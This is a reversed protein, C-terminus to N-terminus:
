GLLTGFLEIANITMRDTGEANKGTQRLRVFRVEARWVVSFALGREGGSGERRDAL